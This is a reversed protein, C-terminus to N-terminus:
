VLPVGSLLLSLGNQVLPAGVTSGRRLATSFDVLEM